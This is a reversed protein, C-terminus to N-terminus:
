YLEAYICSLIFHKLQNSLLLTFLFNFLSLLALPEARRLAARRGLQKKAGDVGRDHGRFQNITSEM